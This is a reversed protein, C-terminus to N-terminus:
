NCRENNQRIRYQNRCLLNWVWSWWYNISYPFPNKLLKM